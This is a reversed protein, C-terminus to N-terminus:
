KWQPLEITFPYISNVLSKKFDSRMSVNSIIKCNGSKKDTM